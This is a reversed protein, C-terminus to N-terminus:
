GGDAAMDRWAEVGCWFDKGDSEGNRGKETEDERVEM